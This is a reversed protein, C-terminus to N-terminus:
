EISDTYQNGFRGWVVRYSRYNLLVFAVFMGGPPMPSTARPGGPNFSYSPPRAGNLAPNMSNTANTTTQSTTPVGGAEYTTTTTTTSSTTNIPPLIPATISAVSTQGNISNNTSTPTLNSPPALTTQSPLASSNNAINPSSSKRRTGFGFNKFRSSMLDSAKTM